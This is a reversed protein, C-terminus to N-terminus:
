VSEGPAGVRFEAIKLGLDEKYTNFIVLFGVWPAKFNPTHKNDLMDAARVELWQWEKPRAKAFAGNCEMMGTDSCNLRNTRVCVCLQSPGPRDIWYKVRFTTDPLARFFGRAWQHDSRIQCMEAKHYPDFWLVPRVVPGSEEEERRGVNWGDPLPRRLDWAFEDPTPGIPQKRHSGDAQVTLYEGGHVIELPEGAADAVSVRGTQVGVETSQLARGLTLVVGSLRTLTAETTSFILPVADASQPRVNATATGRLLSLKRGQGSVTVVSDGALSIDTGDPYTLIASSSPGVTSVMAGHPVLGDAPLNMGEVTRLTIEGNSATLRVTSRSEDDWYRRGFVTALVGAAVGGGLYALVRRRSWHRSSAARTPGAIPAEAATVAQFSLFQFAERAAPDAALRQRLDDAESPSLTNDWYRVFLDTLRPDLPPIV